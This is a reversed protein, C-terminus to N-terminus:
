WRRDPAFKQVLQAVKEALDPKFSPDSVDLYDLLEKTLTKINSQNLLLLANSLLCTSKVALCPLNTAVENILAYVLELARRRISVDSDKVCDVITNRHRQVTQADIAM